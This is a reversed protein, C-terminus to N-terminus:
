KELFNKIERFTKQNHREAEKDVFPEKFGIGEDNAYYILQFIKTKPLEDISSSEDFNFGRGIRGFRLIVLGLRDSASELLPMDKEKIWELIRDTPASYAYLLKSYQMAKALDGQKLLSKKVEQEINLQLANPVEGKLRAFLAIGPTLPGQPKQIPISKVVANLKDFAQFLSGLEQSLVNDALVNGVLILAFFIFKM